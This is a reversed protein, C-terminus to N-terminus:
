DSDADEVRHVVPLWQGRVVDEYAPPPGFDAELLCSESPDAAEQYPPPCEFKPASPLEQQHEPPVCSGPQPAEEEEEGRSVPMPEAEPTRLKKRCKGEHFFTLLCWCLLPAIVFALLFLLHKMSFERSEMVPPILSNEIEANSTDKRTTSSSPMIPYKSRLIIANVAQWRDFLTGKLLPMCPCNLVILCGPESRPPFCITPPLCVMHKMNNECKFLTQFHQDASPNHMWCVCAESDSDKLCLGQSEEPPPLKIGRPVAPCRGECIHNSPNCRSLSSSSAAYRVISWSIVVVLLSLMSSLGEM